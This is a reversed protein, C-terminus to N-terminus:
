PNRRFLLLEFDTTWKFQYLYLNRTEKDIIFADIGYDNNGIACYPFIDEVKKNFKDCLFLHAFYDEKLGGYKPKYTKFTESLRDLTIAM